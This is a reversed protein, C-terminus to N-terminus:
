SSRGQGLQHGIEDDDMADIEALLASLDDDDAESRALSSPESPSATITPTLLGHLHAALSEVTPHDFILTSGLALGTDASLRNRLEVATLSDVGLDFLRRRDEILRDGDFGLTDRIRRRLHERIHAQHESVPLEALTTLLAPTSSEHADSPGVLRAFLRSSGPGAWRAYASWDIPLVAVHGEARRDLLEDLAALGATPTLARLGRRRWSAASDPDVESAMGISAWPGWAVSLGPLGRLRRHEALADMVANAAAYSGQGASGLLAAASSFLVFFDLALSETARHLHWAGAVKPGFVAALRERSQEVLVGDDVVGALHLVGRIPPLSGLRAFAAEVEAWSSLDVREVRVQAGRREIAAISRRAEPTPSRRALLVLQRAGREVLHEAVARGLAGLGGSILYTADPDLSQREGADADAIVLKGVHRAQMLERFAQRVDRRAFVRRPLPALEGRALWDMVRELMARITEPERVAVERLDFPLYRVDPRREAFTRAEVGGLKGLEVFRAGEACADLSTTIFDGALSNLVVDVGRGATAHMLQAGFELTRSNMIGEVGATELIPWKRPSATAYITAGVRKAVAVAALGVGGAAAHILVRDRPGLAALELLGYIATLYAIPITAAAAASLSPPRRVVFAAPVVVHSAVSGIAQVALVPEGVELSPQGALRPGIATVRGACEFGFRLGAADLERGQDDHVALMGLAQLVDRFNLAAAEVEIEVEGPGPAARTLPVFALADLTGTQETQLRVPGSPLAPRDLELRALHRVGDRLVVRDEGPAEYLEDLLAKAAQEPDGDYELDVCTCALEPHESAIVRALGWVAADACASLPASARTVSSPVGRTVLLLRPTPRLVVLRQVLGLVRTAVDLARADLDEPGLEPALWVVHTPPAADTSAEVRVWEVGRAEIATALRATISSTSGTLLWRGGLPRTSATASPTARETGMRLFADDLESADVSAGVSARALTLEDLEALPQGHADLLSLSARVRDAGVREVRVLCRASAGAARHVRLRGFGAPLFTGEGDHRLPAGVAQLCADLLVPHLTYGAAFAAAPVRLEAIAAGPGAALSELARFSPGYGVGRARCLDYYGDLEVADPADVAVTAPRPEGDDLEIRGSAHLTWTPEDAESASFIEVTCGEAQSTLVTQLRTPTASLFLPQHFGFAALTVPRRGAWAQGVHLAVEVYAAAPLTPRDFVRHDDLYAPADASVRSEFLLPGAATAIRKGALPHGGSAPAAAARPAVPDVWHPRREFPYTPLLVRRPQQARHVAAWDLAVGRLYLQRLTELVTSWESVGPRLSPLWASTPEGRAAEITRGLAALSPRPGLEIFTDCGHDLLAEVGAAFRVPARVHEVWYDPRAHASASITGDLNAALALGPPRAPIAAVVRRFEVLMPEMLPSHFAHAVRLARARIGRQTCREAAGEIAARPGSIVTDEPGNIAAIALEGGLEAILEGAGREDITLALMAGAPTDPLAHMLRGRECVLELADDLEFVGAVCAAALEGVSHGIAATPRLGFSSWMRALGHGLAFLAVQAHDTRVLRDEPGDFLLAPLPQGLRDGLVAACRDIGARFEPQLEYLERGMGVQQSGQGTFLFAIRAEREDITSTDLAAGALKGALGAADSAVVAVRHGFHSRGASATACLDGLDPAADALLEAYGDILRGLATPTKASLCLLHDAPASARVREPTPDAQELIVHANTGSIGFSSVGAFRPGGEFRTAVSPVALPLEAWPVHPTPNECHLHPPIVGRDLALAVKILGAIGAGAELHGINTKVSGVWLPASSSHGEGAAAVLARLEIPDGLQTGTGHAEVYGLERAEIGASALAAQIVATQAAGNPVTFGSSRGDHNVASGRIQALVRDGDRRAAALPKLIVIGCGEGRGYGDAEASFTKCRGDPALAHMRSLFISIEPALILQVGGVIAQECEGARLSQCALHVAVLSSSCATDIAMNPGQLGLVHSLRGTAFCFGNGTGAYASIARPDGALLQLHNYDNQGIGIFVGTRTGRLELPAYGARELAEWSLELLMRQQPDLSKAERPSIGFFDADFLRPDSVFAGERTSIKGVAEPDPDYYADVDWRDPPIEGVADVGDVLLRWFSEASDVGGPFRCAVGVIAIREDHAEAQISGPSPAPAEDALTQAVFTALEALTPHEFALTSPLALGLARQLQDRLEVAMLSDMGMDAFGREDEVGRADGLIAIVAARILETLRQRRLEFPLGRLEARDATESPGGGLELESSARDSRVELLESVLPLAVTEAAAFRRWDIPMVVVQAAAPAHGTLRALVDCGEAPTLARIGYRRLRARYREASAMGTGSWAGWAVSLGPLGLARRHEALADVFGNAAAYGAQGPAGLVGAAASYLVFHEIPDGRTARHLNWAGRLKAALIRNLAEPTQEIWLRDEVHGAAHIVGRIPAMSERVGALVEDLADARGIDVSEVHVKVGRERWAAIQEHAAASPPRRALLVLSSVGRTVLADAAHRGLGGLGGAIVYTGDTLRDPSASPTPMRELRAGHLEGRRWALREGSGSLGLASCIGAVEDDGDLDLISGILDPLERVLVAGLNALPAQLVSAPTTIAHGCATSAGRTILHLRPIEGEISSLARALDWLGNWAPLRALDEPLERAAESDLAWLHIVAHLPVHGRAEAVVRDLALTAGAPTAWRTPGVEVGDPLTDRYVEVCRHGLAALTAALETGLGGQDALILWGRARENSLGDAALRRWAVRYFCGALADENADAPPPAAVPSDDFWCPRRQFAYTPLRCKRRRYDRDFGRWDISAGARYLQALTMSIQRWADRRPHLSALWTGAGGACAPGMATLTAGPGIEVFVRSGAEVLTRVGAHFEVAARTHAAWHAPWGGAPAQGPAIHQGGHNSLLPIRASGHALTGAVAELEALMPAVAPSHFAHSVPLRRARIGREGLLEVVRTIAAEPGSLVAAEPGNDAAIVLEPADALLEALAPEPLAVAAMAGGRPLAQMLRARTAVLTCADELSLVGAVHAATYEGLSHGMVASPHVGWAAWLEVLAVELAFLAPQAYGTSDLLARAEDASASPPYMISLLPRELLADFLAACRDLATRFSPQTAYLERGMDLYQAGQGAFVFVPGAGLAPDSPEPEGARLVAHLEVLRARAEARTSAVVAERWRQHVRGVNASWCLDGLEDACPDDLAAAYRSCLEALAEPSRASLTLVHASRELTPEGTPTSVPPPAALLAHVNTGGFGFASVGAVRREGNSPWPEPQTPVRLSGDALGDILPNAQEFHLHPPIEGHELALTAKVLGAMGAAAELHGLNTKVSGVWLPASERPGFVARLAGLEIPDGLKTGTGHAEVYAVADAEIGARELAGRIVTQQAPGNPVTLASSRGDHNTASGLILSRVADDSARADGLRRLVVVGCGESRVYGDAGADFVKCRGDPALMRAKSFNVWFAPSLQLSAAGVLALDCEGERLSQCALHVAALASSCATDVAVCPGVLGLQHSLRGAATAHANGTGLYADIPADRALQAQLYDTAGIGVFVGTNTGRLSDPAIVADELAEWTVELLLRQQPDLSRAERASVGFFEPDFGRIDDLFGGYRTAIRGAADPDPDYWADVDWRDLPVEGVADVGDLLLRWFAAPSDVGGPFRCGIGVIAIPERRKAEIADLQARMQAVARLARKVSSRELKPDSPM